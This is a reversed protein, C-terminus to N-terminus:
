CHEMLVAMIARYLDARIPEAPGREMWRIRDEDLMDIWQKPRLGYDGSYSCLKADAAIAIQAMQAKSMGRPEHDSVWEHSDYHEYRPTGPADVRVRDKGDMTVIWGRRGTIVNRLLVRDSPRESM